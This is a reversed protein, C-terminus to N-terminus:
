GEAGQYAFLLMLGGAKAQVSFCPTDMFQMGLGQTHRCKPM